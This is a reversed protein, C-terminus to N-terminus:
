ITPSMHFLHSYPATASLVSFPFGFYESSFCVSQWKTWWTNEVHVPGPDLRHNSVWTITEKFRTITRTLLWGSASKEIYKNWKEVRKSYGWHEDDPSDITDICWRTYIVRTPTQYPPIVPIGSLWKCVTIYVLHNISVISEGSSSCQTGRFM